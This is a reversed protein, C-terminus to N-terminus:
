CGVMELTRQQPGPHRQVNARRCGRCTTVHVDCDRCFTRTVGVYRTIRYHCFHCLVPNM